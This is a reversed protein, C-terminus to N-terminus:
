IKEHYRSNLISFSFISGQTTKPKYEIKGGLLKVLGHCLTLDLGTGSVSRSKSVDQNTFSNFLNERIIESVGIGTDEVSLVIHEGKDKYALRIWGEKTFKIANDLLRSLIRKLTEPTSEIIFPESIMNEIFLQLNKKEAQSKYEIFIEYLLDNLDFAEPYVKYRNSEMRTIDMVDNLISMLLLSSEEIVGVYMKIEEGSLENTKLLESFGLIGNMPTRIEHNLNAFITSILQDKNHLKETLKKLEHQSEELEKMVNRSYQNNESM